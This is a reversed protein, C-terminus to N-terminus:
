CKDERHNACALLGSQSKPAFDCYKLEQLSNVATARLIETGQQRSWVSKWPAWQGPNTQPAVLM